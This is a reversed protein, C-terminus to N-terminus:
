RHYIKARESLLSGHMMCGQRDVYVVMISSPGVFSWGLVRKPTMIGYYYYIHVRKAFAFRISGHGSGYFWETWFGLGDQAGSM